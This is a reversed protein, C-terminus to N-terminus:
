GVAIIEKSIPIDFKLIGTGADYGGRNPDDVVCGHFSNVALNLPASNKKYCVPFGLFFPTPHFYSIKKPSKKIKMKVFVKLEEPLILHLEM